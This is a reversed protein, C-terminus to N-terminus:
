FYFYSVTSLVNLLACDEFYVLSIWIIGIVCNQVSASFKDCLRRVQAISEHKRQGGGGTGLLHLAPFLFRIM